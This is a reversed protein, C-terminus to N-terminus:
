WLTKGTKVEKLIVADSLANVLDLLMLDCNRHGLLDIAIPLKEEVNTINSAYSVEGM